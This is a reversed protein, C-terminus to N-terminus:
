VRLAANQRPDDRFTLWYKRRSENIKKEIMTKM